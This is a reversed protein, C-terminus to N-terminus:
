LALVGAMMVLTIARAAENTAGIVDGTVGGFVSKGVREM